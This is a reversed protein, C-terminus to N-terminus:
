ILVANLTGVSTLVNPCRHLPLPYYSYGPTLSYILNHQGDSKTHPVLSCTQPYYAATRRRAQALVQSEGFCHGCLLLAHQTIAQACRVVCIFIHWLLPEDQTWDETNCPLSLWEPMDWCRERGGWHEVIWVLGLSLREANLLRFTTRDWNKKFRESNNWCSSKKYATEHM